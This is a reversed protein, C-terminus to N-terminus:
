TQPISNFLFSVLIYSFLMVFVGLTTWVLIKKAKDVQESAGSATMWLLGAAIYLVLTISGIFAMLINIAKKILQSPDTLGAPNLTASALLLLENASHGRNVNQDQDSLLCPGRYIKVDDAEALTKACLNRAQSIADTENASQFERCDGPKYVHAPDNGPDSIVPCRYTVCTGSAACDGVFIPCLSRLLQGECNASEYSDTFINTCTTKNAQCGYKKLNSCINNFAKGDCKTGADFWNSGVVDKCVENKVCGRVVCPDNQFDGHLGFCRARADILGSDINQCEDNVVCGYNTAKAANFPVVLLILIFVFFQLAIYPRKFFSKFIKNNSSM